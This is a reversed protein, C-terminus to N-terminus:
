VIYSKLTTSQTLCSRYRGLMDNITRKLEEKPMFGVLYMLPRGECFFILTPTGMVGLDEALERNGESELVNIKAFKVKGDYEAALSEFIPTFRRCWPCREHWFYVLTLIPSRLIEDNWDKWSVEVVVM